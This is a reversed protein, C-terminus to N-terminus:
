QYEDPASFGVIEGNGGFFWHICGFLLLFICREEHIRMDGVVAPSLSLPPEACLADMRIRIEDLDAGAGAM